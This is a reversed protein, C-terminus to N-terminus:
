QRTGSFSFRPVGPLQWCSVQSATHATETQRDTKKIEQLASNGLRTAPTATGGQTECLLNWLSSLAGPCIKIVHMVQQLGM